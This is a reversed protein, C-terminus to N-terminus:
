LLGWRTLKESIYRFGIAPMTIIQQPVGRAQLREELTILEKATLKLASLLERAPVLDDLREAIAHFDYEGGIELPQAWKMSRPIGEPDAKMPAFDYVPALSISNSSRIFATNRGHNDSNGFM